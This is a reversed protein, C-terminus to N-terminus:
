SLLDQNLFTNRVYKPFTPKTSQKPVPPPPILYTNPKNNHTLIPSSELDLEESNNEDDFPSCIDSHFPNNISQVLEQKRLSPSQYIFEQTLLLSNGTNALEHLSLSSKSTQLQEEMDLPQTYTIANGASKSRSHTHESKRTPQLSHSGESFSWVDNNMPIIQDQQIELITAAKPAPNHTTFPGIYSRRNNPTQVTETGWWPTTSTGSEVNQKALDTKILADIANTHFHPIPAGLYVLAKSVKRGNQAHAILRLLAFFQRQTLENGASEFLLLVQELKNDELTCGNLFKMITRNNIKGLEFPDLDRWWSQYAHKEMESLDYLSIAPSDNQEPLSNTAASSNASSLRKIFQQPRREELDKNSRQFVNRLKNM